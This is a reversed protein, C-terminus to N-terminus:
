VWTATCTSGWLGGTCTLKWGVQGCRYRSTGRTCVVHVERKGEKAVHKTKVVTNAEHKRSVVQACCDTHCEVMGAQRKLRPATQAAGGGRGAGAVGRGARGVAGCRWPVAGGGWRVGRGGRARMHCETGPEAGRNRVVCEARHAALRVPAGAHLYEGLLGASM